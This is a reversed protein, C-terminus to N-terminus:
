ALQERLQHVFRRERHRENEADHRKRDKEQKEHHIISLNVSIVTANGIEFTLEGIQLLFGILQLLPKVSFIIKDIDFFICGFFQAHDFRGIKLAYADSKNVFVIGINIFIVVTVLSSEANQKGTESSYDAIEKVSM